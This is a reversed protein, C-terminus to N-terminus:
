KPFAKTLDVPRFIDTVGVDLGKAIATIIDLTPSFHSNLNEVNQITRPSVGSKEALEIQSCGNKHRIESVNWALITRPDPKSIAAYIDPRVKKMRRIHEGVTIFGKLNTKNSKTKM